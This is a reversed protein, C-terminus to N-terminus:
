RRQIKMQFTKDPNIVGLMNDMQTLYMSAGLNSDSDYHDNEVFESPDIVEGRDLKSKLKRSVTDDYSQMAESESINLYQKIGYKKVLKKCLCEPSQSQRSQYSRVGFKPDFKEKEM